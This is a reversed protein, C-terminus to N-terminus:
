STRANKSAPFLRKCLVWIAAQSVPKRIARMFTCLRQGAEAAGVADDIIQQQTVPLYPSMTPTHIAGTVATTIWVKKVM